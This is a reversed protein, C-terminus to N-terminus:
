PGRGILLSSGLDEVIILATSASLPKRPDYIKVRRNGEIYHVYEDPIVGDLSDYIKNVDM